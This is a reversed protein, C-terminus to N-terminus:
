KDGYWHKVVTHMLGLRHAVRDCCPWPFRKKYQEEDPPFGHTKIAEELENDLHEFM